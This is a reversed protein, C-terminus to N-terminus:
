EGLSIMGAHLKSVVDGIERGVDEENSRRVISDRPVVFHEREAPFRAECRADVVPNGVNLRRDRQDGRSESDM